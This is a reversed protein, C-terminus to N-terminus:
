RRCANQETALLERISTDTTIRVGQCLVEIAGLDNGATALSHYLLVYYSGNMPDLALAESYERIALDHQGSATYLEALKVHIWPHSPQTNLAVRYHREAEAYGHNLFAIEGLGIEYDYDAPTQALGHIALERAADAPGYDHYFTFLNRTTLPDDPARLFAHELSARAQELDGGTKVLAIGYLSEDEAQYSDGEIVQKLEHLANNWDSLYFFSRALAVHAEQSDPSVAALLKADRLSAPSGLEANVHKFLSTVVRRPSKQWICLALDPNDETTAAVWGARWIVTDSTGITSSRCLEPLSSDVTGPPKPRMLRVLELNTRLPSM